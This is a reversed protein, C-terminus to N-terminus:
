FVEAVPAPFVAELRDRDNKTERLAEPNASFNMPVSEHYVAPTLADPHGLMDAIHKLRAKHWHNSMLASASLKSIRLTEAELRSVSLIRCVHDVQKESMKQNAWTTTKVFDPLDSHTYVYGPEPQVAGFGDQRFGYVVGATTRVLFRGVNPRSADKWQIFSFGAPAGIVKFWAAKPGGPCLPLLDYCKAAQEKLSQKPNFLNLIFHRLQADRSILTEITYNPDAANRCGSQAALEILADEDKPLQGHPLYIWGKHAVLLRFAEPDNIRFPQLLDAYEGGPTWVRPLKTDITQGPSLQM